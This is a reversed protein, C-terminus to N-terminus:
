AVQVVQGQEQGGHQSKSGAVAKEAIKMEKKKNSDIHM